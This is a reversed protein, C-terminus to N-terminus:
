RPQFTTRQWPASICVDTETIEGVQLAAFFAMTCMAKMLKRHYDGPVTSSLAHVIQELLPLTIPLRLDAVSPNLKSYGQLALKVTFCQTPDPLSGLRHVYGIASLYTFM